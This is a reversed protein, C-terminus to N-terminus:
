TIAYCIGGILIGLAWFAWSARTLQVLTQQIHIAQLTQLNPGFEPRHSVVGRYTNVGGLQVGLQWATAAELYGSNPSPHRKADSRWGSLRKHFSIGSENPTLVLLLFGTIRAPIFNLVDDARASAMGFQHYRDDKYGVMSDLTNVAKYLWIGPAGLLFAYFLPATIGDSINESVTEVVGRTIESEDLGDTDRGVIWSLKLRATDMDEKALPTAVDLAADRLSKQALAVAILVTEVFAGIVLHWQYAAYTLLGAILAVTSVVLVLM